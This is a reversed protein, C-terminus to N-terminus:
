ICALNILSNTIAYEAWIRNRLEDELWSLNIAGRIRNFFNFSEKLRGTEKLNEPDLFYFVVEFRKTMSEYLLSKDGGSNDCHIFKGEISIVKLIYQCIL